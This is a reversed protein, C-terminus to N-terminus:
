SQSLNLSGCKWVNPEYIAAVNHARRAPRMKNKSFNRTSMETVPQTSRVAMTHSSPNPWILFEIVGAQLMSGWGVVNGRAGSCGLTSHFKLSSISSLFFFYIYIVWNVEPVNNLSAKPTWIIHYQQM